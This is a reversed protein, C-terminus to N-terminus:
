HPKPQMFNLINGWPDRILSEIGYFRDDPAQTFEVGAAKLREYDAQVDDTEIILLPMSGAQKGLAARDADNEPLMLTLEFGQQKPARITVWRYEGVGPYNGRADKTVVFGLKGCYFAIAQDHNGVLLSFMAVKSVQQAPASDSGAAAATAATQNSTTTDTIASQSACGELSSSSSSSSSAHPDEHCQWFGQLVNGPIRVIAYHGYQLTTKETVVTAGIAQAKALSETIDKVLIYTVSASPYLYLSPLDFFELFSNCRSFSPSHSLSLTPCVIWLM